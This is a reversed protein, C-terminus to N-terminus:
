WRRLGAMGGFEEILRRQAEEHMFELRAGGARALDPLLDALDAKKPDDALAKATSEGLSVFRTHPDLYVDQHLDGPVAVTHLRGQQLAALCEDLGWLGRERIRSLLDIEKEAEVEEVKDRVRELVERPAGNASSLSPLVAVVLESLTTPLQALLVHPDRGPGMLIVRGIAREEIAQSLREVNGKYFREQARRVHERALQDAAGGRDALFDPGSRAVGATSPSRADPGGSRSLGASMRRQSPELSDEEEAITDRSASWLEEIQGMHLEFTRLRDRDAHVILYPEFRDAAVLLPTFYPEGFHIEVADTSTDNLFEVEFELADMRKDDAFLVLSRSGLTRGSFFTLVRSVMAEPLGPTRKLANKVRILVAQPTVEPRAPNVTAYLSLVPPEYRALREQLDLIQRKGIM